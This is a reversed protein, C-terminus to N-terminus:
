VFPILIQMLIHTLLRMLIQMLTQMLLPLVQLKVLLSWSHFFQVVIGLFRMGEASSISTIAASIRRYTFCPSVIRGNMRRLRSRKRAITFSSDHAVNAKTNVFAPM